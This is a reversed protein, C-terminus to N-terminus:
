NSENKDELLPLEPSVAEVIKSQKLVIRYITDRELHFALVLEPWILEERLGQGWLEAYKEYILKNRRNILSNNRM